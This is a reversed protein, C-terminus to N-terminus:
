SRLDQKQVVSDLVSVSLTTSVIAQCQNEASTIFHPRIYRIRFLLNSVLFQEQQSFMVNSRDRKVFDFLFYKRTYTSAQYNGTSLNFCRIHSNSILPLQRVVEVSFTHTAVFQALRLQQGIRSNRHYFLPLWRVTVLCNHQYRHM